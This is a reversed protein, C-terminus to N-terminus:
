VDPNGMMNCADPREKIIEYPAKGLMTTTGTRIEVGFFSNIFKM